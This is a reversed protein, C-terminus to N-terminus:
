PPSHEQPRAAAILPAWASWTWDPRKPVGAALCDPCRTGLFHRAPPPWSVAADLKDNGRVLIPDNAVRQGCVADRTKRRTKRAAGGFEVAHLVGDSLFTSSADVPWAITGEAMYIHPSRRASM